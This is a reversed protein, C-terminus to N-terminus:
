QKKPLDKKAVTLRGKVKEFTDKPLIERTVLEDTTEYPRGMIIHHCHDKGIGPVAELQRQSATNIDVLATKRTAVPKKVPPTKDDAVATGAAICLVLALLKV